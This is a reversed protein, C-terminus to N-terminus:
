LFDNKTKKYMFRVAYGLEDCIAQVIELASEKVDDHVCLICTNKRSFISRKPGRLFYSIRNKLLEKEIAKRHDGDEIECLEIENNVKLDTYISHM